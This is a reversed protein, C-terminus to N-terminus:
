IWIGDRAPERPFTFGGWAWRGGDSSIDGSPANTSRIEEIVGVSTQTVYDKIWIDVETYAGTERDRPPVGGSDVFAVDLADYSTTPVSGSNYYGWQGSYGSLTPVGAIMLTRSNLNTLGLLPVLGAAAFGAHEGTGTRTCLCFTGPRGTDGSTFFLVSLLGAQTFSGVSRIGSNRFDSLSSGFYGGGSNWGGNYSACAWLGAAKSGFGAMAGTTNRFGFFVQLKSGDQRPSESQLVLWSGDVPDLDSTWIDTTSRDIITWKGAMAGTLKNTVADYVRYLPGSRGHQITINVWSAFSM